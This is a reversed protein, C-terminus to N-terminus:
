GFSGDSGLQGASKRVITKSQVMMDILAWLQCETPSKPPPPPAIRPVFQGQEEEDADAGQKGGGGSPGRDAATHAAAATAQARIRDGVVILTRDFLPVFSRDSCRLKEAFLSALKDRRSADDSDLSLSLIWQEMEQM